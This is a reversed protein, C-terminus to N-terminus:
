TVIISNKFNSYVAVLPGKIETTDNVTSKILQVPGDVYMSKITSNVAMLPGRVFVQGTVTTGNLNAPGYCTISSVTGSGYNCVGYGAYANTVMVVLGGTVTLLPTLLKSRM